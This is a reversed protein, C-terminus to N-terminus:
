AEHFIPMMSTSLETQPLKYYIREIRKRIDKQRDIPKKMVALWSIVEIDKYPVDKLYDSYLDNPYTTLIFYGDMTMITQLLEKHYDYMTDGNCYYFQKTKDVVATEIYPPDIFFLTSPSDHREICKIGDINTVIVDRLREIYMEVISTLSDISIIGTRTENFNGEDYRGTLGGYIMRTFIIFAYAREIPDNISAVNRLHMAAKRYTHQMYPMVLFRRILKAAMEENSLVEFLNTINGDIDNIIEKDYKYPKNVTVTATGCFPEVFKDIIDSNPLLELIHRLIKTKNGPYRLISRFRKSLKARKEIYNGYRRDILSMYMFHARKDTNDAFAEDDDFLIRDM